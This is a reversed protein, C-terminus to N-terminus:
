RNYPYESIWHFGRSMLPFSSADKRTAHVAVKHGDIVGEVVLTATAPRVYSLTFPEGSKPTLTFTHKAADDAVKWGHIRKANADYASFYGWGLEVYAWPADETGEPTPAGDREFADVAFLGEDLSVPKGDGWTHYGSWAQKGIEYSMSGIVIIKAALRAREIRKSRFPARLAAPAVPRNLLFFDALRRVDFSAVIAAWVFLHFSYIKVPVDFSFNLLVVNALVGMGLLAGLTATRRFLLLIGPLAEAFGGFVTYPTSFGMFRWLLAMPSMSGLPEILEAADLAPFQSKLIKYSGYALLAAGVVYRLSLRLAAPGRSEVLARLRSRDFRLGWIPAFAEGALAVNVSLAFAAFLKVYSATTDGSGSAQAAPDADVHFVVRGVLPVVLAWFVRPGTELWDGVIPLSGLPGPFCFLFVYAALFRFGIRQAPNWHAADPTANEAATAAPTSPPSSPDSQLPTPEAAM